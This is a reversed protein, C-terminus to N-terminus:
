KQTWEPLQAQGVRHAEAVEHLLAPAEPHREAPPFYNEQTGGCAPCEYGVTQEIVYWGAKGELELWAARKTGGVSGRLPGGSFFSVLVNGHGQCNSCAHPHPSKEYATVLATKGQRKWADLDNKAKPPLYPTVHESM